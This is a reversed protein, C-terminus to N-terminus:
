KIKLGTDHKHKSLCYPATMTRNWALAFLNKEDVFRGFRNYFGGLSGNFPYWREKVPTLRGLLSASRVVRTGFNLILPVIGRYAKTTHVPFVKGKVCNTIPLGCM